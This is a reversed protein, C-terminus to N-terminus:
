KKTPNKKMITVLYKIFFNYLKLNIGEDSLSNYNTVYKGYFSSPNAM